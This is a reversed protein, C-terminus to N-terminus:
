RQRADRSARLIIRIQRSVQRLGIVFQHGDVTGASLRLSQSNSAGGPLDTGNGTTIASFTGSNAVPGTCNTSNYRQWSITAAVGGTGAARVRVNGDTFVAQSTGSTAGTASLTFTVGIHQTGPSFSADTFLGNEDATVDWDHPGDAVPDEVLNLHVTEGAAWGSGIITVVEGPAYDEKDTDVTAGTVSPTVTIAAALEPKLIVQDDVTLETPMRSGESCSVSVAAVLCVVLPRKM